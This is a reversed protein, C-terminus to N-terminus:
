VLKVMVMRPKATYGNKVVRIIVGKILINQILLNNDIEYLVSACLAM